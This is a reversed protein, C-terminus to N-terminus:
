RSTSCPCAPSVDDGVHSRLAGIDAPGNRLQVMANEAYEIQDGYAAFFAPTVFAGETFEYTMSTHIVGVVTLDVVPGSGPVDGVAPNYPGFTELHIVDGLHVRPEESQVDSVVIENPAAPDAMRGAAVIPRDVQQLWVDDVPGFLVVYAQGFLGFVLRWRAIAEVEPRRALATWDPRTASTQSTFVVADSANGRSELRALATGTRMSGDFAAVSVGATLGALLGLLLLSRWRSRLDIRTWLGIASTAPVSQM